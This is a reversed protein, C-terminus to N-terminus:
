WAAGLGVQAKEICLQLFGQVLAMSVRTELLPVCEWALQTYLPLMDESVGAYAWQMVQCVGVELRGWAICAALPAGGELLRTACASASEILLEVYRRKSQDYPVEALM